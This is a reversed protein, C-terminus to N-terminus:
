KVERPVPGKEVLGPYNAREARWKAAVDPKNTATYLEILRDLAEPVRISDGAAPLSKEWQKLGEYGQLLSPEAEPYKERGLLSAGLLLQAEFKRSDDPLNQKKRLSLYEQLHTAADSWKKQALYARGLSTRLDTNPDFNSMAKQDEALQSLCLKVIKEHEGALAYVDLLNRRLWLDKAAGAELVAIADQLRGADRYAWAMQIMASRTHADEPGWKAKQRKLVDELLPIAKEFQRLQRYIRGLNAAAQVTDPHEIGNKDKSINLIEVRLPLEQEQKGAWFYEEALRTLAAFADADAQALAAKREDPAILNLYFAAAFDDKAARATLYGYRYRRPDPQTHLRRYDIEEEDPILTVVEVRDQYLRALFRGDPSIRKERVTSPIAEGRVETGTRADWAKTTGNLDFTFFRTGDASFWV